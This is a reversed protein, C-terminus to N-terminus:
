RHTKTFLSVWFAIEAAFGMLLLIVAGAAVGLSYLILALVLFAFTWFHNKM